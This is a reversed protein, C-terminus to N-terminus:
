TVYTRMAFLLAALSAFGVFALWANLRVVDAFTVETNTLRSYVGLFFAHGLDDAGGHPYLRGEECVVLWAGTQRACEASLVWYNAANWGTNEIDIFRSADGLVVRFNGTGLTLLCAFFLLWRLAESKGLAAVWNWRARCQRLRSPLVQFWLRSLSEFIWKVNGLLWERHRRSGLLWGSIASLSMGALLLRTQTPGFGAERGVGLWDAAIALMGLALGFGVLAKLVIEARGRHGPEDNM